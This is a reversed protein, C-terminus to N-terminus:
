SRGEPPLFPSPLPSTRAPWRRWLDTAHAAGALALWAACAPWGAGQLASRMALLLGLGAALNAVLDRVAPGRGTALRWASLALGELVTFAIVLDVLPAVDTFPM